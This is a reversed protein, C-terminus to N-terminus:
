VVFPSLLPYCSVVFLSLFCPVQKSVLWILRALMATEPIGQLVMKLLPMVM